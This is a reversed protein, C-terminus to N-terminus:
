GSVWIPVRGRGLTNSTSTGVRQITITADSAEAQDPIDAVACWCGDPSLSAGAFRGDRVEMGEGNALDLIWLSQGETSFIASMAIAGDRSFIPQSVTVGTTFEIAGLITSTGRDRDIAYFGPAVVDESVGAVPYAVSWRSGTVGYVYLDNMLSLTLQKGTALEIDVHERVGSATDVSLLLHTGDPSPTM